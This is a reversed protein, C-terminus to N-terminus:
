SVVRSIVTLLSPCTYDQGVTLLLGTPNSPLRVACAHIRVCVGTSFVCGAALRRTHTSLPRRGVTLVDGRQCRPAGAKMVARGRRWISVIENGQASRASSCGEGPLRLCMSRADSAASVDLRRCLFDRICLRAILLRPLAFLGKCSIHWASLVNCSFKHREPGQVPDTNSCHCM